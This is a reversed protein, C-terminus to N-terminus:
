AIAEAEEADVSSYFRLGGKMSGRTINHQVGFGIHYHFEGDDGNSIIEVRVMRFPTTLMKQGKAPISLLDVAEKFYYKSEGLM